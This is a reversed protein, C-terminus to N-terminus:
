NATAAQLVQIVHGWPLKKGNLYITPTGEVQAATGENGSKSILDFTEASDMCTLLEQENVGFKEQIQPVLTKGDTTSFFAEQNDFLWHTVDLGKKSIKESCLALAAFQCRSNDGKQTVGPNCNGDLPYPKFIFRVDTRNKLFLSITNSAVKCHPCKFDAYEILTHKPNEVGNSIGLQPDFSYETGAQWIAVKEPVYKAIQDLGYHQGAMGALVWGFAPTALLLILHSKYEGFYAAFNLEGKTAQVLNWGVVLNILTLVYSAMCFPCGVQVVFLSIAGMIISVVFAFALQFRLTTQLYRTEDVWGMRIFLVLGFLFLHFLGGLVALPIGALESYSSSAAADCNLTSSISCLSDGGTGTKIQYHHISLYTFVGITLALSILLINLKKNM